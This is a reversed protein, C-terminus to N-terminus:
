VRVPDSLVGAFEFEGSEKGGFGTTHVDGVDEGVDRRVGLNAVAHKTAAKCVARDFERGAFESEPFAVRVAALWLFVGVAFDGEILDAILDKAEGKIGGVADVESPFVCAGVVDAEDFGGVSRMRRWERWERPGGGGGRDGGSVSRIKRHYNGGTVPWNFENGGAPM